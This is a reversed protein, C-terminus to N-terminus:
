GNKTKIKQAKRLIEQGRPIKDILANYHKLLNIKAEVRKM